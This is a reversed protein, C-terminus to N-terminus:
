RGVTPRKWYTQKHKLAEFRAVELDADDRTLGRRVAFRVGNDDERWVSWGHLASDSMEDHERDDAQAM